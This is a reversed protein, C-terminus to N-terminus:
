EGEVPELKAGVKKEMAKGSLDNVNGGSKRLQSIRSKTLKSVKVLETPTVDSAKMAENLKAADIQM